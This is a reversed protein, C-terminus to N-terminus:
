RHLTMNVKGSFNRVIFIGKYFAFVSTIPNLPKHLTALFKEYEASMDDERGTLAFVRTFYAKGMDADDESKFGAAFIIRDSVIDDVACLAMEADIEREGTIDDIYGVSVRCGASNVTVTVPMNEDNENPIVVECFEKGKTDTDYRVNKDARPFRKGFMLVTDKIDM